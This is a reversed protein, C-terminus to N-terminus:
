EDEVAGICLASVEADEISMCGDVQVQRTHERERNTRHSERVTSGFFLTLAITAIVITVCVVITNRQDYTEPTTM